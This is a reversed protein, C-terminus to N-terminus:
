PKNISFTFFADYNECHAPQDYEVHWGAKRYDDEIDLWHNDFIVSRRPRSDDDDDSSVLDLIEDQLVNAKEGDWKQQILQNVAEFIFDPIERKVDKPSIPQVKKM